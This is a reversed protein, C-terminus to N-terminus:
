VIQAHQVFVQCMSTTAPVILAVFVMSSSLEEQVPLAIIPLLHALLALPMVPQANMLLHIKSHEVPALLKVSIEMSFCRVPVLVVHLVM